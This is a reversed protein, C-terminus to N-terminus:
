NGYYSGKSGDVSCEGLGVVLGRLWSLSKRQYTRRQWSNGEAHIYTSLSAYNNSENVTLVTFSGKDELGVYIYPSADPELDVIEEGFKGSTKFTGQVVKFGQGCIGNHYHDTWPTTGIRFEHTGAEYRIGEYQDPSCTFSLAVLGGTNLFLSWRIVNRKSKKM